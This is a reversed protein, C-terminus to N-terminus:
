VTGEELSGRRWKGRASMWEIQMLVGLIMLVNVKNVQQKLLDLPYLEISEGYWYQTM